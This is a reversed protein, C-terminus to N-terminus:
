EYVVGRSVIGSRIRRRLVAPTTKMLYAAERLRFSPARDDVPWRKQAKLAAINEETDIRLRDSITFGRGAAIRNEEFGVVNPKKVIGNQEMNSVKVGIKDTM